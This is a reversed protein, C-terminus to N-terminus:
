EPNEAPLRAFRPRGRLSRLRGSCRRVDRGSLVGDGGGGGRRRSASLQVGTRAPSTDHGPASRRLCGAHHRARGRATHRCCRRATSRPRASACLPPQRHLRPLSFARSHQTTPVTLYFFAHRAAALSLNVYCKMANTCAFVFLCFLSRHLYPM